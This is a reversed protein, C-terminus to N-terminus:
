IKRLLFSHQANKKVFSIVTHPPPVTNTRGLWNEGAKIISFKLNQLVWTKQSNWSICVALPFVSKIVISHEGTVCHILVVRHCYDIETVIPLM